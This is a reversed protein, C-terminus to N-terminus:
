IKMAAMQKNLFEQIEQNHKTKATGSFRGNKEMEMIEDEKKPFPFRGAWSTYIQYNNLLEIEKESLEIKYHNVIDMYGHGDANKSKWQNMFEKFTCIRGSLINDKEEFLARAKLILELSVAYMLMSGRFLGLAHIRENQDRIQMIEKGKEFSDDAALKLSLAHEEYISWKLSSRIENYKKISM